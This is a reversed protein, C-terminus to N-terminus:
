AAYYELSKTVGDPQLWIISLKSGSAALSKLWKATDDLDKMEVMGAGYLASDAAAEDLWTTFHRHSAEAMLRIRDNPDIALLFEYNSLVSDFRQKNLDWLPAPKGEMHRALLPFRDVFSGSAGKAKAPKAMMRQLADATSNIKPSQFALILPTLFPAFFSFGAWVFADRGLQQAYSYCLGAMVLNWPFRRVILGYFSSFILWGANDSAPIIPPIFLLLPSAFLFIRTIKM